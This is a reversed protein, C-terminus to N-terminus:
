DVVHKILSDAPSGNGRRQFSSCKPYQKAVLSFLHIYQKSKIGFITLMGLLSCFFYDFLIRVLSKVEFGIGM